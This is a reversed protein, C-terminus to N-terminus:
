GRGCFAENSTSGSFQLMAKHAKSCYFATIDLMYVIHGYM